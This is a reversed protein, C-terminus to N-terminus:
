ARPVAPKKAVPAKPLLARYLALRASDGVFHLGAAGVIAAIADRVRRHAANRAATKEKSTLKQTEQAWDASALRARLVNIADIDAPLVGARRLQDPYLENAKVVMEAGDLVSKVSQAKMARGVGARAAVEPDLRRLKITGRVAMVREFLAAAAENQGLTAAKKAQRADVAGVAEDRLRPVDAILGDIIGAELRPELGPRDKKLLEILNVAAEHTNEIESTVSM